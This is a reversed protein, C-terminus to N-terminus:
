MEIVALFCISFCEGEHYMEDLSVDARRKGPRGKKRAGVGAVVEGREEREAMEKEKREIMEAQEDDALWMAIDKTRNEKSRTNFDVGGGAGGSIVM